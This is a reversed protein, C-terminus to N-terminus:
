KVHLKKQRNKTDNKSVATAAADANLITLGLIIKLYVSMYVDFLSRILYDERLNCFSTVNLKLYSIKFLYSFYGKDTSDGFFALLNLLHVYSRIERWCKSQHIVLLNINIALLNKSYM